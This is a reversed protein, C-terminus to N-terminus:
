EGTVTTTVVNVIIYNVTKVDITSIKSIGGAKAAAAVGGEEGLPILAFLRSSSAEGVKSGVPESTAGVPFTGLTCSSMGVLVLIVAAALLNKIKKM